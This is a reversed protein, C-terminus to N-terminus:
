LKRRRLVILLFAASSLALFANGGILLLQPEISPIPLYQAASRLAMLLLWATVFMLPLLLVLTYFLETMGPLSKVFREARMRIDNRVEEYLLDVSRAPDPSKVVIGLGRLLLRTRESGVNESVRFLVSELESDETITGRLYKSIEGKGVKLLEYLSTRIGVNCRVLARLFVLEMLTEWM